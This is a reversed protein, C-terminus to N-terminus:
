QSWEPKKALQDLAHRLREITHAVDGLPDLMTHSDDDRYCRHLAWGVALLHELAAELHERAVLPGKEDVEEDVELLYREWRARTEADLQALLDSLDTKAV